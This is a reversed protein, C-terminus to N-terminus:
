FSTKTDFHIFVSVLNQYTNEVSRFNSKEYKINIQAVGIFTEYLFISFNRLKVMEINKRAM